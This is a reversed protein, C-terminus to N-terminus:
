ALFGLRSSITTTATKLMPLIESYIRTDSMDSKNGFVSMAAIILGTYDRLPCSVCRLGIECEENDMAYEQKRVTDLMGRLEDPDTITYETYKSLGKTDLYEDFQSKSYQSLLIKGSGTAHLPAQKGIRQPTFSNPNDICDLYVCENNRNVVLCTGLSLKNALNNIFPTTINRLGLISNLNESLCCVRWTLAYRLTDEDQYIYKAEQLAYLYRLVTSQTM